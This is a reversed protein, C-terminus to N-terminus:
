RTWAFCELPQLNLRHKLATYLQHSAEHPLRWYILLPKWREWSYHCSKLSPLRIPLCKIELWKKNLSSQNSEVICLITLQHLLHASTRCWAIYAEQRKVRLTPIQRAAGILLLNVDKFHATLVLLSCFISASTVCRTIERDHLIEHGLCARLPACHLEVSIHIVTSRLAAEEWNDAISRQM